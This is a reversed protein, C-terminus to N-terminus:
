WYKQVFVLLIDPIVVVDSMRLEVEGHALDKYTVVIEAALSNFIAFIDNAGNVSVGAEGIIKGDNNIVYATFYIREEKYADQGYKGSQYLQLEQKTMLKVQADAPATVNKFDAMSGDREQYRKAADDWLAFREVWKGTTPNYSGQWYKLETRGGGAPREGIRLETEKVSLGSAAAAASLSAPIDSAFVTKIDLYSVGPYKGTERKTLNILNITKSDTKRLIQEVRVIDGNIDKLV